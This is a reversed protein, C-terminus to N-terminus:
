LTIISDVTKFDFSTVSFFGNTAPGGELHGGCVDLGVEEHANQGEGVNGTSDVTEEGSDDSGETEGGVVGKQESSRREQEACEAHEEVSPVGVSGVLASQM